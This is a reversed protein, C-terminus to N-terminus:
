DLKLVAPSSFRESRNMENPTRCRMEFSISLRIRKAARVLIQEIRQKPIRQLYFPHLILRKGRNKM